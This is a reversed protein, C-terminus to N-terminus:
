SKASGSTFARGLARRIADIWIGENAEYFGPKGNLRPMNRDGAHHLGVLSWDRDFVPSGSSGPETPARYHLLREDRDILLNDYLSLSLAGGLPHGIVYIRSDSRPAPDAPAIPCGALGVPAPNLRAITADLDTAPSSWVIERIRYIPPAEAAERAAEFRVMAQHPTLTGGDTPFAELVHANTVLLLEDPFDCRPLLDGARVLFGTGGGTEFQNTIRAVLRCRDLGTRYWGVTVPVDAGLVKQLRARASQLQGAGIEVKGGQRDLLESQLLPILTAGPEVDAGLQWVEQLQRLASNVEFADAEDRNAVYQKFAALVVDTRGLALNAEAKVAYDWATLDKERKEGVLDLAARALSDVQAAGPLDGGPDIGDRQARRIMAVTNVAHWGANAGGLLHGRQYSDIANRLSEAARPARPANVYRQKHIRGLLGLAEAREAPDPNSAAAIEQLIALAATLSGRDILAQAYQRRIQPGDTGAQIFADGVQQMLDFYQKRRLTSLVDKAVPEPLSPGQEQLRKVLTACLAAVTPRDFRAVAEKLLAPSDDTWTTTAPTAPAPRAQTPMSEYTSLTRSGRGISQWLYADHEGVIEVDAPGSAHAPDGAGMLGRAATLGSMVTAEVCGLNIPNRTWDGALWLNAPVAGAPDAAADPRLRHQLTRPLNLTYLESPLVNARAFQGAEFNEHPSLGHRGGWLLTWEFDGGTRVANWIYWCRRILHDVANDLARRMAQAHTEGPQREFVGCFYSLGNVADARREELQLAPTMDIYTDIPEVYTGFVPAPEDWGLEKLSARSWIQFAQTPTTATQGLMARWAPGLTRHDCLSGAIPKLAEVPIGLVVQDFDKGRELVHPVEGDWRASPDELNLGDQRIARELRAGDALQEFRPRNPWCPFDSVWVFPDYSAGALPVQAAVRIRDVVTRGDAEGLELGDIRHFFEFRVGRRRLAEYIPSFVVDGMGAAMRYAFAGKYTLFLRLVGRLASGAAISPALHNGDVFAFASNYIFRVTPNSLLYDPDAGHTRLWDRLEFADLDDMNREIDGDKFVDRSLGTTIAAFTDCALYLRHAKQSLNGWPKVLARACRLAWASFRLRLRFRSDGDLLGELSTALSEDLAPAALGDLAHQLFDEATPVVRGEYYQQVRGEVYRYFDKEEQTDLPPPAPPEAPASELRERQADARVETVSRLMETLKALALSEEPLVPKGDGPVRGNRPVDLRWKSWEGNALQENVVFSEHPHFAARPDDAARAVCHDIAVPRGAPTQWGARALEQYCGDLLRFANDYFGFWVHIGHEEIRQGFDPNRGSAGKGGLRWGLTYVTVDFRDGRAPDTLALAASLAGAGGGLVAVKKKDSV